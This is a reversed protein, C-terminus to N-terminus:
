RGKAKAEQAVKMREFDEARLEPRLALDKIRVISRLTEVGDPQWGRQSLEFPVLLGDRLEYNGLLTREGRVPDPKGDVLPRADAAQLRGDAKGIWIQLQVPADEGGQQLLPFAPLEGTVTFCPISETRSRVLVAEGIPGPRQLALLVDGPSLFRLLQRVLNQHREFAALDQTADAGTLDEPRERGLQWPGAKDFGRVITTGADLVRYHLLPLAKKGDPRQWQLFQLALDVQGRQDASRDVLHLELVARLATIPPVPGKPRHATEVRAALAALDAPPQPPPTPPAPSQAITLTAFVLPAFRHM